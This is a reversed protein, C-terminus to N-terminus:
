IDRNTRRLFHLSSDGYRRSQECIWGDPWEPQLRAAEEIVLQGCTITHKDLWQPLLTSFGKNYPPDAFILDFSDGALTALGREVSTTAIRWQESLGWDAAVVHMARTAQRQQEISLASSAGRSLAELAIVGSGSFLDLVSMNTVDHLINFLAQRVKAPTPRLGPLDPVNLKRGRLSGATIIM